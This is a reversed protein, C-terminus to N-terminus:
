MHTLWDPRGKTTFPAAFQRLAETMEVKALNAARKSESDGTIEISDGEVYTQGFHAGLTTSLREQQQM